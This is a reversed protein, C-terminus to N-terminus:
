LVRDKKRDPPVVPKAFVCPLANKVPIWWRAPLWGVIVPVVRRGISMVARGIAQHRRIETNRVPEGGPGWDIESPTEVREGLILFSWGPAWDVFEMRDYRFTIRRSYDETSVFTITEVDQKPGAARTSSFHLEYHRPDSWEDFRADFTKRGLELQDFFWPYSKFGIHKM